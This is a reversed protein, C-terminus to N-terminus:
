FSGKKLIKSNKLIMYIVVITTVISFVLIIIVLFNDLICNRYRLIAIIITTCLIAIIPISLNWTYFLTGKKEYGEKKNWDEFFTIKTVKNLEKNVDKEIQMIYDQMYCQKIISTVASIIIGLCLSPALLILLIDMVYQIHQNNYNDNTFAITYIVGLM